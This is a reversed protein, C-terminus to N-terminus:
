HLGLERQVHELSQLDPRNSFKNFKMIAVKVANNYRIPQQGFRRSLVFNHADSMPSYFMSQLFHLLIKTMNADDVQNNTFPNPFLGCEDSNCAYKYPCDDVLITNSITTTNRGFDLSIPPWWFKSQLSKFFLVSQPKLPNRVVNGWMDKFTTCDEQGLVIAPKPMGVFLYEVMLDITSKRMSSWICVHFMTSMKEWFQKYGLRPLVVKPGVLAPGKDLACDQMIWTPVIVKNKPRPPPYLPLIHWKLRVGCYGEIPYM